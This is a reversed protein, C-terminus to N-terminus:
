EARTWSSPLFAGVLEAAWIIAWAGLGAIISSVAIFVGGGATTAISNSALQDLLLFLDDSVLTRHHADPGPWFQYLLLSGMEFMDGTLSLLPATAVPLTMGYLFSRGPTSVLRMGPFGILTLLYPFLITIAYTWDSGLTDFGSLRGAYDGGPSIFPFLLSLPEGGYLPSLELSEVRGGALSCGAAHMLEHAPVYIWWGVGIGLLIVPLRRLTGGLLVHDLSEWLTRFPAAPGPPLREPRLQSRLM